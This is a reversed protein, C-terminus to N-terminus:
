NIIKKEVKIYLNKVSSYIKDFQENVLSLQKHLKIPNPSPKFKFSKILSMNFKSALIQAAEMEVSSDIISIINTVLSLYIKKQM